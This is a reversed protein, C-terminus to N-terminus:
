QTSINYLYIVERYYPNCQQFRFIESSMKFIYGNPLYDIRKHLITRSKKLNKRSFIYYVFSLNAVYFHSAIIVLTFHM